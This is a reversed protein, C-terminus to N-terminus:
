YRWVKIYSSHKFQFISLFIANIFIFIFISKSPLFICSIQMCILVFHVLKKEIKSICSKLSCTATNFRHRFDNWFILYCKVVEFDLLISVFRTFFVFDASCGYVCRVWLNQVEQISFSILGNGVSWHGVFLPICGSYHCLWVWFNWIIFFRHLPEFKYIM